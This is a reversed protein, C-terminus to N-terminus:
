DSAEHRLVLCSGSISYTDPHLVTHDFYRTTSVLSEQYQPFEGAMFFFVVFVVLTFIATFYPTHTNLGSPTFRRLAVPIFEGM